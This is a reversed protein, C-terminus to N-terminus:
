LPNLIGNVCGVGSRLKNFAEGLKHYYGHETPQGYQGQTNLCRVMYHLQPTSLLGYDEFGGGFAVIGDQLAAALPM